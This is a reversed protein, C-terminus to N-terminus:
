NRPKSSVSSEAGRTTNGYPQSKNKCARCVPDLLIHVWCLTYIHPGSFHSPTYGNSHRVAFELAM